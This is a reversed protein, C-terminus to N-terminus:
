LDELLDADSTKKKRVPTPRPEERRPTAPPPAKVARPPSARPEDPPNPAPATVAHLTYALARNETANVTESVPEHGPLELRVHFTRGREVARAWPTAGVPDGDLFVRAGPPVSRVSLQATAPVAPAVAAARPVVNPRRLVVVGAGVAVLLVVAGAVVAVPGKTRRRAEGSRMAVTAPPAPMPTDMTDTPPDTAVPEVPVEQTSTVTTEQHVIPIRRVDSVLDALVAGDVVTRGETVEESPLEELIRTAEDPSVPGEDDQAPRREVRALTRQEHSSPTAAELARAEQVKQQRTSELQAFGGTDLNVMEPQSLELNGPILRALLTAAHMASVPRQEPDKALLRDIAEQLAANGALDPRYRAIRPVPEKQHALLIATATDANFPVRAALMQFLIIGLAYIDSRPGVEQGAVQEPSMYHPTGVLIGQMTLRVTNESSQGLLKAIGFDMVKVMDGAGPMSQLFINAPKLDRHIIGFGHAEHLAKLVQGAIGAARALPLPGKVKIERALERGELLEMVLYLVGEDTLGFDHVRITNPHNLKSTVRAERQFRKVVALDRTLSGHIVKIAVPRDMSLQVARYVVGMGGKGLVHTIEYQQGLRTGVLDEPAANVMSAPVTMGGCSPCAKLHTRKECEPCIRDGDAKM